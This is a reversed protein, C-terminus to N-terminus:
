PPGASRGPAPRRPATPPPESWRPGRVRWGIVVVRVCMWWLYASWLAIIGGDLWFAALAAPAYAALAILMARQMFGFDGAGALVGDFTFAAAAALQDVALVLIALTALGVVRSDTTFLRPLLGAGAGLAVALALGLAMAMRLARGALDRAAAVQGAGLETAILTQVATAIADLVLATLVSLQMTIQHAALTSASMRAAVSTGIALAALLAGTRVFLQRAVVMLALAERPRPRLDGHDAAVHRGVVAVLAVAAGAQAIVTGWASGAIGMDLVYVFVVELVVNAVNSGAAVLFPTRTDARGRLHGHGAFTILIFPMGVASVRLYTTAALLM